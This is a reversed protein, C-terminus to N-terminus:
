LIVYEIQGASRDLVANTSYTWMDINFWVYQYQGSILRVSFNGKDNNPVVIVVFYNGNANVQLEGKATSNNNWGVRDSNWQVWSVSAPNVGYAMLGCLVNSGFNIVAQGPQVFEITSETYSGYKILNDATKIWPKGTYEWQDVNFWAYSGNKLKLTWAGTDNNATNPITVNGSLNFPVVVVSNEKWGIRDSNFNVSDVDAVRIDTDNIVGKIIGDKVDVELIHSNDNLTIKGGHMDQSKVEPPEVEPASSSGGGGGGCATLFFLGAILVFMWLTIKKM